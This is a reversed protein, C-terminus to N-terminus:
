KKNRRRMTTSLYKTVHLIPIDGMNGSKGEKMHVYTIRMKLSLPNAFLSHWQRRCKNVLQMDVWGQM